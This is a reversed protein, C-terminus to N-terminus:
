TTEISGYDDSNVTCNKFFFKWFIILHPMLNLNRPMLYLLLQKLLSSKWLENIGISGM